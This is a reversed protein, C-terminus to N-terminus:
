SIIFFWQSSFQHLSKITGKSKRQCFKRQYIHVISFKGLLKIPSLHFKRPEGLPFCLLFNYFNTCYKCLSFMAHFTCAIGNRPYNCPLRSFRSINNGFTKVYYSLCIEIGRSSTLIHKVAKLM